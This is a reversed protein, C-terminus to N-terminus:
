LYEQKPSDPFNVEDWFSITEPKLVWFARGDPTNKFAEQLRSEKYGYKEAHIKYVRKLDDLPVQYSKGTIQLAQKNKSDHVITCASNPNKIIEKSHRRAKTSTWYINNDEDTVFYVNCLWPQDNDVTALQMLTNEHFYKKLLEKM